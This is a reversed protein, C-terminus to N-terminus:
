RNPYSKQLCLRYLKNKKKFRAVAFGVGFIAELERKMMDTFLWDNKYASFSQFVFIKSEIEYTYVYTYEKSLRLRPNVTKLVNKFGRM